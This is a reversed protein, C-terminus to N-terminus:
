GSVQRVVPARRPVCVSDHKTNDCTKGKARQFQAAYELYCLEELQSSRTSLTYTFAFCQATCFADFRYAYDLIAPQSLGGRTVYQRLPTENLFARAAAPAVVETEHSMLFPGRMKTLLFYAARPAGRVPWV